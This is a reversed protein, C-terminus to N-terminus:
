SGKISLVSSLFFLTTGEQESFVAALGALRCMKDLLSQKVAGKKPTQM